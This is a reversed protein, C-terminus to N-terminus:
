GLFKQSYALAQFNDGYTTEEADVNLCLIKSLLSDFCPFIIIRANFVFLCFFFFFLYAPM